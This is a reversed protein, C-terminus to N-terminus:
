RIEVVAGELVVVLHVHRNAVLLHRCAHGLIKAVVQFGAFLDRELSPLPPRDDFFDDLRERPNELPLLLTRFCTMDSSFDASGSLSADKQGRRVNSLHCKSQLATM